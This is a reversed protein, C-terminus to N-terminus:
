ARGSAAPQRRREPGGAAALTRRWTAALETDDLTIVAGRRVDILRAAPRVGRARVVAEVYTAMAVHYREPVLTRDTKYDDLWWGDGVRVLRDVVGYWTSGGAEFAFPLEAHDEDRASVPALVGDDVLRWYGALLAGVEALLEERVDDRFPFLVEQAALAALAAGDDPRWGRAIADHVLTGVATGRGALVEGDDPDGARRDDDVEDGPGWAGPAHLPAPWRARVPPEPARGAGELAVWSPSVVAPYRPARPVRGLWAAAALPASPEAAVARLARRAGEVPHQVVVAGLARAVPWGAERDVARPGLGARHLARLWPGPDSRGQVGSLLLVDRPRSAAVYLARMSEGEARQRRVREFAGYAETGPVAVLGTDPELAVAAGRDGGGAGVDVVAVVPWELGKAAHVTLLTVGDGGQPVDGADTERAMAEMRDLLRELDDAPREALAVVLADVNDRARRDLRAVYPTGDVLPGYALTAVAAGPDALVAARVAALRAALEPARAALAAAPDAARAVAAAFAVGAAAFPGRLWVALSPGNPDIAVRVAHVLDRVEPREFYGRGQRLVTPVGAARLAGAVRSLRDHSRAVVAMARWPQGDEEHLRWLREGLWAEEAPRLADVGLDDHRWWHLEVCGEVAAQAGAPTVDPAEARGFGLDADGLTGTLHNLFAAVTRAHRRTRDLPPDLTGAAAAAAAARRFVAVDAQRFGYISQKPDGVVELHAGARELAEFLRGQLPNVDQFEDVLVVPYRAVVRAALAPADVFRLAAREV